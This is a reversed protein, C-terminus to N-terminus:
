AKIKDEPLRKYRERGCQRKKNKKEESFGQYRERAEKSTKRRNKQYYNGLSDKYM